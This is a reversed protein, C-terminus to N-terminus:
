VGELFKIVGEAFARTRDVMPLHGAGEVGLFQVNGKTWEGKLKRLGEALKGGADDEGAVLLVPVGELDMLGPGGGEKEGPNILDYGQLSRAGAEFGLVDASAIMEVIDKRTNPHLPSPFWREVTAEALKKMGDEENALEIREDWAKINAQPGVAQTDCAVISKALEPSYLRGFNLATAGGQSVGLVSHVPMPIELTKLVLKIDDALIGFTTTPPSPVTSKGHGRQDYLLVNYSKSLHPLILTWSTHNTLLSNVLVLWPLHPSATLTLVHLSQPSSDTSEPLPVTHERRDVPWPVAEDSKGAVDLSVLFRSVMNYTAVVAAAEALLDETQYEKSEDADDVTLDSLSVKLQKFVDEPIKIEKTSADTFALAASHLPTLPSQDATLGSFRITTDRILRLQGTTLGGDRGVPEHQIWEFAADNLAAVRLIMAERVDGPLKGKSRVAGLLLNWGEAVPPVHLLAGDLPTLGRAGRRQRILDAIRSSGAPPFRGPIRSSTM